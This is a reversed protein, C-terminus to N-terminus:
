GFIRRLQAKQIPTIRRSECAKQVSKKITWTDLTRKELFALTEDYRNSLLTAYYWAKMMKVYYDSSAVEAVKRLFLPSFREKSFHRMLTLIGFRCTYVHESQMWEYAKELTKEPCKALVKPSMMDCTAWNDVFPLFEDLRSICLDYDKILAILSAHLNDEDYTKHPLSSLFADREDASDIEKALRRIDPIRVGVVRSEDLTPILASQFRRYKDDSLSLLKEEISM